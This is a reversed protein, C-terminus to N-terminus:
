NFLLLLPATRPLFVWGVNLSCTYHIKFLMAALEDATLLLWWGVSRRVLWENLSALIDIGYGCGDVAVVM